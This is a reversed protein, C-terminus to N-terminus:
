AEIMQEQCDGCIINVTKTARVSNGCCPCIYKRTSSPKRTTPTTTGGTPTTGSGSGGYSVPIYFGHNMSIEEWGKDIIYEILKESPTTITWGYRDDHEIILDVTEAKEKFKKNHYTDGRSCDQINHKLNWLHVMEHLLTAIVEEIPRKLYDASINLEHREEGKVTWTKHVSCHGYARPTSQITIVPEDVEGNFYDANLQRFCKELFGATRSTRTTEKM